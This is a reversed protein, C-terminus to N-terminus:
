GPGTVLASQTRIYRDYPAMLNSWKVAHSLIVAVRASPDACTTGCTAIRHQVSNM